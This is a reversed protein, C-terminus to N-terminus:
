NVRQREDTARLLADGLRWFGVSAGNEVFVVLLLGLEECVARGGDPGVDQWYWNMRPPESRASGPQEFEDSAGSVSTTHAGWPTSPSRLGVKDSPKETEGEGGLTVREVKAPKKTTRQRFM